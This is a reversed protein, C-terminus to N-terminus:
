SSRVATQDLVSWPHRLVERPKGGSAFDVGLWYFSGATLLEYEDAEIQWAPVPTAADLDTGVTTIEAVPSADLWAALDAAYSSGLPDAGTQRQFELGTEVAHNSTAVLRSTDSSGARIQVLESGADWATGGSTRTWSRAIYDGRRGSFEAREAEAASLAM